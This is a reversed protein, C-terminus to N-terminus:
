SSLPVETVATAGLQRLLGATITREFRGDSAEVCVFFADSSAARFRPSNSIPHHYRPLRNLLIMGLAGCLVGGLVASEFTIPIFAPWSQLPRGGINLPYSIVSAYYEMFYGAAASLVGAILFILPISSPRFNLAEAMGEVPYPAYTEVKCYGAAGLDKAARVMEKPGAFEALIGYIPDEITPSSM